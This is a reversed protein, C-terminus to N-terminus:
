ATAETSRYSMRRWESKKDLIIWYYLKVYIGARQEIVLLFQSISCCMVAFNVHKPGEAFATASARVHIAAM